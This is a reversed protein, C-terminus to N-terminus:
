KDCKSRLRSLALYHLSLQLQLSLLLFHELCQEYKSTHKWSHRISISCSINPSSETGLINLPSFSYTVTSPL